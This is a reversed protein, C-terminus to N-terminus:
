GRRWSSIRSAMRGEVWGGIPHTEWQETILSKWVIYSVPPSALCQEAWFTESKWRRRRGQLSHWLQEETRKELNIENGELYDGMALHLMLLDSLLNGLYPFVGQQQQQKEQVRQPNSEPPAFTFPGEHFGSVQQHRWSPLEEQFLGALVM